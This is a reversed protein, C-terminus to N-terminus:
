RNPAENMVREVFARCEDEKIRAYLKRDGGCREAIASKMEAYENRARANARLGDRFALHRALEASRAPCAYLHHAMWARPPSTIPAIVGEATRFVERDRIGQDGGHVYGLRGLREVVDAFAAEDALVLDIDLIPKALLGPVATSGVHEVRAVLGGLAAEYVARLSEFEEAWAPNYSSLIM